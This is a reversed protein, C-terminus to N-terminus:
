HSLKYKELLFDAIQQIANLAGGDAYNEMVIVALGSDRDIKTFCGFTAASGSHYNYNTGNIKKNAWGFSYDPFATLMYKYTVAHLLNNKRKLGKLFLQIFRVYDPININLDGAPRMIAAIHYDFDPSLPMLTDANLIHGWPQSPDDVNPFGTRFHIGPSDNVYKDLLEEWSMGSIKELMSAALSIGANSYVYTQGSDPRAAPEKLIASAFNIKQEISNGQLKYAAQNANVSRYPNIGARHSLLDQLSINWYEKRSAPKLAPFIDFYKTTWKIKKKEILRAAIFATVAKTNSGIHFQDSIQVRATDNVRRLGIAGSELIKESNFVAYTIGPIRYKIRISDIFNSQSFARNAPFVLLIFLITKNM